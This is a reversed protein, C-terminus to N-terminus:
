KLEELLVRVREHVGRLAEALKCLEREVEKKSIKQNFRYTGLSKDFVLWKIQPEEKPKSPKPEALHKAVPYLDKLQILEEPPIEGFTQGYERATENISGLLSKLTVGRDNGKLMKAQYALELVIMYDSIEYLFNNLEFLRSGTRSRNGM